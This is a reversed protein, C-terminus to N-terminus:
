PEQSGLFARREEARYPIVDGLRLVSTIPEIRSWIIQADVQDPYLPQSERIVKYDKGVYRWIAGSLFNTEALFDNTSLHEDFCKCHDLLANNVKKSLILMQVNESSLLEEHTLSSIYLTGLAIARKNDKSLLYYLTGM